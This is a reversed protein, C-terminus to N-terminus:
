GLWATPNTEAIQWYLEEGLAARLRMCVERETLDEQRTMYYDSGFLVRNRVKEDQLFVTLAHINEDFDFLTYSIDTYLNPHEGSRIMDLIAAVWNRTRADPDSPDIGDRRYSEWMEGGGFHALCFRLKPFAPLVEKYTEPAGLNASEEGRMGKAYVGGTSCHSMVPLPRDLGSLYEYIKILVPHDPRFGLRPYIKLGQFNLDEVCRKVEDLAGDRDPHVTAFPILFDRFDDSNALEALANHQDKLSKEPEKYGAPAGIDMPLVVFKTSDPYQKRLDRLVAHQNPKRGADAMRGLRKIQERMEPSLFALAAAAKILFPRNRVFGVMGMPYNKPVHDLTFLHIHCNIIQQKAM